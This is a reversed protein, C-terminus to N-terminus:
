VAVLRAARHRGAPPAPATQDARNPVSLGKLCRCGQRRGRVVQGGVGWGGAGRLLRACRIEAGRVGGLTVVFDIQSQSPVYPVLHPFETEHVVREVFVQVGRAELWGAMEDLRRSAEPVGIKKVILCRQPTGAENGWLVVARRRLRLASSDTFRVTWSSAALHPSTDYHSGVDAYSIALPSAPGGAAAVAAAAAAAAATAAAPSEAAAELSLSAATGPADLDIRIPPPPSPTPPPPRSSSPSPSSNLATPRDEPGIGREPHVNPVQHHTDHQTTNHRTTNHQTTNHQCAPTQANVNAHRMCFWREGHLLSRPQRWGWGHMWGAGVTIVGHPLDVSSLAAQHEQLAFPAFPPGGGGSGSGGEPSSSRPDDDDVTADLSVSTSTPSAGRSARPTPPAGTDGSSATIQTVTIQTATTNVSLLTSESTASCGGSTPATDDSAAAVDARKGDARRRTTSGTTTDRRRRSSSTTAASNPAAAAPSPNNTGPTSAQDSPHATTTSKRPRGRKSGGGSSNAAAAHCTCRRSRLTAHPTCPWAPQKCAARATVRQQLQPVLTKPAGVAPGLQQLAAIM